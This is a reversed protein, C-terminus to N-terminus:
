LKCHLMTVTVSSSRLWGGQPTHRPFSFGTLLVLFNNSYIRCYRLALAKRRYSLPSVMELVKLYLSGEGLAIKRWRMGNERPMDM